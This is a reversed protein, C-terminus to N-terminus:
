RKKGAGLETADFGAAESMYRRAMRRFVEAAEAQEAEAAKNFCENALDLYLGSTDSDKREQAMNWGCPAVGRIKQRLQNVATQIFNFLM